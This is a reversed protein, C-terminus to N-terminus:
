LKAEAPPSTPNCTQESLQSAVCIVGVCNVHACKGHVDPSDLPAPVDRRHAWTQVAVYVECM